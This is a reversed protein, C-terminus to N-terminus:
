QKISSLALSWWSVFPVVEEFFHDTPKGNPVGESFQVVRDVGQTDLDRQAVPCPSDFCFQETLWGSFM